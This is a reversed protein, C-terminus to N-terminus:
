GGVRLTGDSHVFPCLPTLTNKNSLPQGKLLLALDEAFAQSQVLKVYTILAEDLELASLPGVHM